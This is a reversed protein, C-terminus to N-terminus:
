RIFVLRYSQLIGCEISHLIKRKTNLTTAQEAHNRFHITVYEKFIISRIIKTVSVCNTRTIYCPIYSPLCFFFNVIKIYCDVHSCSSLVELLYRNRYIKFRLSVPLYSSMNHHTNQSVRFRVKLINANRAHEKYNSVFKFDLSFLLAFM